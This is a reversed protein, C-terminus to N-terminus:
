VDSAKANSRRRRVFATTMTPFSEGPLFIWGTRLTVERGTPGSMALDVLFQRGFEIDRWSRVPTVLKGALIRAALEDANARNYGLVRELVLAKDGGRSHGSALSYGVLKRPDIRAQSANILTGEETLFRDRETM